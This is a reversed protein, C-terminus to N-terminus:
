TASGAHDIRVGAGAVDGIYERFGQFREPWAPDYPVLEVLDRMPESFFVRM